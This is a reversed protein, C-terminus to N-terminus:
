CLLPMHLLLTPLRGDYVLDGTAALKKEFSALCNLLATSNANHEPSEFLKPKRAEALHVGIFTLVALIATRKIHM